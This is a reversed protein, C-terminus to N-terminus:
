ISKLREYEEDVGLQGIWGELQDISVTERFLLYLQAADEFDQQGRLYLKYAIQLELAGAPITAGAIHADIANSLSARDFEGAPFKVELHPTMQDVPAVWIYTGSSLNGDM